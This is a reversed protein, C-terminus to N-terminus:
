SIDVIPSVEYYISAKVFNHVVASVASEVYVVFCLLSIFPWM